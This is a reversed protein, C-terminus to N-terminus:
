RESRKFTEQHEAIKSHLNRIWRAKADQPHRPGLILFVFHSHECTRHQKSRCFLRKRMHVQDTKRVTRKRLFPGNSVLM